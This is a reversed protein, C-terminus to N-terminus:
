ETDNKTSQVLEEKANQQFLSVCQIEIGHEKTFSIVAL